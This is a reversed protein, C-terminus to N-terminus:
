VRTVESSVARLRDVLQNVATATSLADGRLRRDREVLPIRASLDGGAIADIVRAVETSRSAVEGIMSNLADMALAWEGEVQGISARESKVGEEGLVRSVRAIERAISQSQDAVANFAWAAQTTLDDFGVTPIRVALDGRRVRNLSEIIESLKRELH